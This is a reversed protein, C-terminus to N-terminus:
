AKLAVGEGWGAAHGALVAAEDAVGDVEGNAGLALAVVGQVGAVDADDVVGCSGAGIATVVAHASDATNVAQGVPDESLIELADPM